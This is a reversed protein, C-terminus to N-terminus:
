ASKATEETQISCPLPLKSAFKKLAIRAVEIGMKEVGVSVLIKGPQVQAANGIPKGWSHSMGKSMRDAGAGAALPNERLIHHPFMRIKMHYNTKGLEVELIRNCQSRGSEIANDRIQVNRKAILNIAYPFTGNLNGLDFSVVRLAPNGRIYSKERYKSKRTFAREVRRYAIAKRIKAM